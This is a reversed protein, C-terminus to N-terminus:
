HKGAITPRSASPTRRISRAREPSPQESGTRSASASLAVAGHVPLRLAASGPGPLGVALPSSRFQPLRPRRIQQALKKTKHERNNKRGERKRGHIISSLEVFIIGTARWFEHCDPRILISCYSGSKVWIKKGLLM